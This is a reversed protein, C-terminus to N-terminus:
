EIRKLRYDLSFNLTVNFLNGDNNKFMELTRVTDDQKGNIGIVKRSSKEINGSGFGAYLDIIGQRSYARSTQSVAIIIIDKAVALDNLKIMTKGIFDKGWLDKTEQIQELYDIVIVQANEQLIAEEIHELTPAMQVVKLHELYPKSIEYANIYHREIEQKTYGTIMQMNKRHTLMAATEPAFLITSRQFNKDVEGTMFNLGLILNQVFTSKNIGTTGVLTVLEGPYIKCDLNPDLGLMTDLHIVRNTYDTELRQILAKQMDEMSFIELAMNKHKFYQCSTICKSKLIPDNCGYQYGKNYVNEVNKIIVADELSKNNWDLIATKAVESPFGHRRFHSALRMSVNNRTGEEPGDQFLTYICSAINRPEIISTSFVTRPKQATVVHHKLENEGYKNELEDFYLEQRSLVTNYDSALEKIEAPSLNLLEDATLHIKYLKSKQNVTFPLRIVSTTNYVSYDILATGMINKVAEKIYFAYHKSMELGFCDSHIDIHYGTGSFWILINDETLDETHIFMNFIDRTKQLTYDDTNDGKDIDIPIWRAIRNSIHNSVSGKEALKNADEEEYLFVSKYMPTTEGHEMILNYINDEHVFNARKRLSGICVEYYM